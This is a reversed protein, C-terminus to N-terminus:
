SQDGLTHQDQHPFIDPRLEHATVLGNTAKEIAQCHKPPVGIKRWRSVMVLSVDTADALHQRGYVAIAKKLPNMPEQM